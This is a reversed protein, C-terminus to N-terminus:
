CARDTTNSDAERPLRFHAVPARPMKVAKKHQKKNRAGIKRKLTPLWIQQRHNRRRLSSLFFFSVSM